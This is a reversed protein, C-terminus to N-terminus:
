KAYWAEGIGTTVAPIGRQLTRAWEAAAVTLDNSMGRIVAATSNLRAFGTANTGPEKWFFEDWYMMRRGALAVIHQYQKHFYNLADTTANLGQQIIWQQM